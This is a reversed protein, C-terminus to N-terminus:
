HVRLADFLGPSTATYEGALLLKLFADLEDRGETPGDVWITKTTSSWHLRGGYAYVFSWCGNPDAQWEGELHAERAAEKLADLSGIFRRKM